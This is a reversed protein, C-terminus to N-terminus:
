KEVNTYNESNRGYGLTSLISKTQTLIHNDNNNKNYNKRMSKM